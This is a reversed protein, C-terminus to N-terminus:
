GYARRSRCLPHFDDASRRQCGQTQINVSGNLPTGATLAQPLTLPAGAQTSILFQGASNNASRVEITYSGSSSLNLTGQAINQSASSTTDLVVIGSPNLVRFPPEFDPTLALMLIIVSQPAGVEISYLSTNSADTISGTKNEGLTILTAAAQAAVTVASILLL